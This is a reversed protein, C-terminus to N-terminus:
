KAKCGNGEWRWSVIRGDSLEFTTTCAVTVNSAPYGGVPTTYAQNGIYTTTYTPAAGPIFVNRSASYTIFKRGGSEYVQRPPGWARVLDVEEAGVWSKLMTEYKETSACGSIFVVILLFYIRKM